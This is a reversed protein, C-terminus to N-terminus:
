QIFQLLHPSTQHLELPPSHCAGGINSTSPLALGASGREQGLVPKPNGGIIESCFSRQRVIPTPPHEKSADLFRLVNMNQNLIEKVIIDLKIYNTKYFFFPM